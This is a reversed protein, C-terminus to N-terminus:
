QDTPAEGAPHPLPPLRHKGAWANWWTWFDEPFHDHGVGRLLWLRLALAEGVTRALVDQRSTIPEPQGDFSTGNATIVFHIPRRDTFAPGVSWLFQEPTVLDGVGFHQWALWGKRPDPDAIANISQVFHGEVQLLGLVGGNEDASLGFQWAWQENITRITMDRDRGPLRTLGVARLGADELETAIEPFTEADITNLARLLASLAAPSPDRTLRSLAWWRLFGIQQPYGSPELVSTALSRRLDPVFEVALVIVVVAAVLVSVAALRRRWKMRTVRCRTTLAADTAVSTVDRARDEVEVGLFAALSKGVECANPHAAVKGLLVRTEASELQVFVGDRDSRLSVKDVQPLPSEQRDLLISFIHRARVLRGDDRNLVVCRRILLPAGVGALILGLVVGGWAVNSFQVLLLALGQSLFLVGLTAYGGGLDLALQQPPHSLRRVGWLLVIQLALVTSLALGFMWATSRLFARASTAPDPGEDAPLTRQNIYNLGFPSLAPNYFVRLRTGPPTDEPVTSGISLEETAVKADYGITVTGELFCYRPSASTRGRSDITREGGFCHSGTVLFVAEQYGSANQLVSWYTMAGPGLMLLWGIAVILLVRILSRTPM